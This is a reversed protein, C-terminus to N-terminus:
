CAAISIPGQVFAPRQHSYHNNAQSSQSQVDGSLGQLGSRFINVLSSINSSESKVAVIEVTSSSKAPVSDHETKAKKPLISDCAEEIESRKRKCTKDTNQETSTCNALIQRQSPNEPETSTECRSMEVSKLETFEISQEPENEKDVGDVNCQGYSADQPPNQDCPTSSTVINSSERSDALEKRDWESPTSTSNSIDYDEEISTSHEQMRNCMEEYYYARATSLVSAVLLNKRLCIGGRQTRSGAIKGISLTILHQANVAM